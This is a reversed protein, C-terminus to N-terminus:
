KLNIIWFKKGVWAVYSGKSLVKKPQIYYSNKSVSKKNMELEDGPVFRSEQKELSHFTLFNFDDPGKILVGQFESLPINIGKNESVYYQTSLYTWELVKQENIDRYKGNKTKVYGGDFEPEAAFACLGFLLCLLLALSGTFGLRKGVTEM